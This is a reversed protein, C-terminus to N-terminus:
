YPTRWRLGPFRSFDRDSTIWECGYEIALAALWADQVLNGTAASQKCLDTFIKWHRRGPEIIQCNPQSQLANTFALADNLRSPKAFIKPHTAIRIVGSLVQPSVGYASPGSVVGELWSRHKEHDVSDTRFAYL